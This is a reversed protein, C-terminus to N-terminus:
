HIIVLKEIQRLGTSQVELWYFGAPIEYVDIQLEDELVDQRTQWVTEGWENAIRITASQGEFQNTKIRIFANSPNAPLHFAKCVM